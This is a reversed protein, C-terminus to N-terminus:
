RGVGGEDVLFAKTSSLDRADWGYFIFMGEVDSGDPRTVPQVNNFRWGAYEGEGKMVDRAKKWTDGDDVSVWEEIDGGGYRDVDKESEFYGDGVILYAHLSGDAGVTLHGSNWQHNSHTIATQKWKGEARRVYYYQHNETTEESLVHLFSPEENGDLVIMPPVGAGRWDTDWIRCHKDAYDVDIPTKMEEGGFNTVAGTKVDVKVYYLDYKWENRVPKDYRPNYLRKPDNSKVDDYSMFVVHLFRGDRSMLKTQYSSWELRGANDMDTVEKVPGVWAGGGDGGGGDDGVRYTWSGSHGTNRFYVLTKNGSVRFATPYSISPSIEEAEKWDELSKGIRGPKRSVLHTGPTKHCGYLVHLREDGDVWIVPGDHHDSKAPGLTVVESFTRSAVDYTVAQPHTRMRGKSSVDDTKGGGNIVIHVKGNMYVSQPKQRHDYIMKVQGASGFPM